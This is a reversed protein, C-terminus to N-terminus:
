LRNIVLKAEFIAAMNDNWDLKSNVPGVKVSIATYIAGSLRLIIELYQFLDNESVFCGFNSLKRYQHIFITYEVFVLGCCWKTYKLIEAM